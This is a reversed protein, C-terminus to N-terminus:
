PICPYDGPKRKNRCAGSISARDAHVFPQYFVFFSALYECLFSFVWFHTIDCWSSGEKIRIPRQDILIRAHEDRWAVCELTIRPSHSM